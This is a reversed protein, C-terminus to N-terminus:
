ASKNWEHAAAQECFGRIEKADIRGGRTTEIWMARVGARVLVCAESIAISRSPYLESAHVRSSGSRLRWRIVFPM